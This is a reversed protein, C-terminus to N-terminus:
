DAADNAGETPPGPLDVFFTSGVGERSEVRIAGDHREVVRRVLALGLGEGQSGAPDLRQFAQFIKDRAHAPIGRGNDRVFYTHGTTAPLSGVSIEGQRAPDLYALANDLLNAFVQELAAPDGWAPPLPAVAVRAGRAAITEGLSASVRAVIPNLDVAQRAYDVRGARALRLLADIITGLRAVGAHIFGLAEGMDGDLLALGRLRTASPVDDAALLARLDQGVLALEQSFGELNVLPARLDHSVSFVFMENEAHQQALARNAAVLDTAQHALAATLALLREHQGAALLAAADALERALRDVERPDVAGAAVPVPPGGIAASM